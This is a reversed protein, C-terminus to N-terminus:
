REHKIGNSDTYTHTSGAKGRWRPGLFEIAARLKDAREQERTTALRQPHRHAHDRM